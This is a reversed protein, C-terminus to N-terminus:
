ETSRTHYELVNMAFRAAVTAVGGGMEIGVNITEIIQGTTAGSDLAQKLHWEMCSECNRYVSIGLAILEKHMKSLNGDTFTKGEMDIFSNYVDSNESFFKHARKRDIIIKRIKEKDQQDM